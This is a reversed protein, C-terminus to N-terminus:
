LFALSRCNNEERILLTEIEAQLSMACSAPAPRLLCSICFCSNKLCSMEWGTSIWIKATSPWWPDMHACLWGPPAPPAPKRQLTLWATGPIQSSCHHQVFPETYACSLVLGLEWPMPLNPPRTSRSTSKPLQLLTQPRPSLPSPHQLIFVGRLSTEWWSKVVTHMDLWPSSLVAFIFAAHTIQPFFCKLYMRNKEWSQTKCPIAKHTSQKHPPAQAKWFKSETLTTIDKLALVFVSM